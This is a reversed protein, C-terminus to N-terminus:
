RSWARRSRPSSRRARPLARCAARPSRSRPCSPCRGLLLSRAILIETAASSRVPTASATTSSSRRRPWSGSRCPASASSSRSSQAQAESAAARSTASPRASWATTQQQVPVPAEIAALLTAPCGRRATRRRRSRGRRAGSSRRWRAPGTAACWWGPAARPSGRRSTRPRGSRPRRRGRGVDAVEVLDALAAALQREPDRVGPIFLFVFTAAGLVGALASRRAPASCSRSRAPSRSRCRADPRDVRVLRLEVRARADRAARAHEDAHELRGHRRDGLGFSLFAIVCM